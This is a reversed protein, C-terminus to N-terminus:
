QMIKNGNLVLSKSINNQLMNPDQNYSQKNPMQMQNMNQNQNQLNIPYQNNAKYLYKNHQRDPVPYIITNHQLNTDGIDFRRRLNMSNM